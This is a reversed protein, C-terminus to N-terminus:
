LLVQGTSTMFDDLHTKMIEKHITQLDKSKNM